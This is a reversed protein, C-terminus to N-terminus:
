RGLVGNGSGSKRLQASISFENRTWVPPAPPDRELLWPRNGDVGIVVLEGSSVVVLLLFGLKNELM